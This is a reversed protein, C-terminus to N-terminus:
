IDIKKKTLRYLRIYCLLYILILSFFWYTSILTNEAFFISPLVLICYISNILVSNMYNSKDQGLMESIHVYSLM